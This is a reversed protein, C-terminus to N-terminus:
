FVFHQLSQKGVLIGPYYRDGSWTKSHPELIVDGDYNHHHLVHLLPGWQIQGMGAPPDEFRRGEISLVDKAHFHYFRHGWDRAEALYDGSGEYFCHSPDYKIGLDPLAKLVIAWAAPSHLFNNWRCNYLAVRVGRAQAYEVLPGLVEIARDCNQFLSLGEVAKAGCVFTRISNRACLDILDRADKEERARVDPHDSIRDRGFRGIASFSVGYKRVYGQLEEERALFPRMDDKNENWEVVPFGHERAFAFDQESLNCIFGLRM